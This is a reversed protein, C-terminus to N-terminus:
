HNELAPHGIGSSLRQTIGMPIYKLLPEQIDSFSHDPWIISKLIKIDMYQGLAKM